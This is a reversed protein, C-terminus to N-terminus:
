WALFAFPPTIKRKVARHQRDVVGGDRQSLRAFDGGGASRLAEDDATLLPQGYDARTGAQRRQTPLHHHRHRPLHSQRNPNQQRDRRHVRPPVTRNPPPAFLGPLVATTPSPLVETNM